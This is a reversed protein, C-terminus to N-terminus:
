KPAIQGATAPLLLADFRAKCLDLKSRIHKTVTDKLEAFLEPELEESIDIYTTKCCTGEFHTIHELDDLMKSFQQIEENLIRAIRYVDAPTQPMFPLPNMTM